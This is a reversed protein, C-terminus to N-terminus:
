SCSCHEGQGPNQMTHIGSSVALQKMLDTRLWLDLMWKAIPRTVTASPPNAAAFGFHQPLRLLWRLRELPLPFHLCQYM